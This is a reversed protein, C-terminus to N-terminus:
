MLLMFGKMVMKQRLRLEIKNVGETVSVEGDGKVSASSDAKEAKINVKETSNPVEVSYEKTEKDFSPLFILVM